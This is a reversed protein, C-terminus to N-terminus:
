PANEYIHRVATLILQVVPDDECLGVCNGSSVGGPPWSSLFGAVSAFEAATILRDFLAAHATVAGYPSFVGFVDSAIGMAGAATVSVASLGDVRVTVTSSSSDFSVGICHWGNVPQPEVLSARTSAGVVREIRASM